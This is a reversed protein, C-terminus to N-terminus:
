HIMEQEVIEYRGSAIADREIIEVLGSCVAMEM